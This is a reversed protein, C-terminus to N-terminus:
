EMNRGKAYKLLDYTEGVNLLTSFKIVLSKAFGDLGPFLTARTINMKILDRIAKKKESAPITIKMITKELLEQGLFGFQSTLSEYPNGQCLFIAQQLYYRQNTNKPEVPFLCNFDGEKSKEFAYQFTMDDFAYSTWANKDIKGKFYELAKQFLFNKNVVWIAIKGNEQNAQEFAFYAAVYPSKSFDLLRSPAGFHQILSYWELLTAPAQEDKLYFKAGKIFEKILEDEFDPFTKIINSRELTTQLEWDANSQGRFIWELKSKEALNKFDSWSLLEIEKYYKMNVTRLIVWVSLNKFNRWIFEKRM